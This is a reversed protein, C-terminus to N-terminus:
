RLHRFRGLHGLRLLLADVYEGAVAWRRRLARGIVYLAHQQRAWELDRLDARDAEKDFVDVTCLIEIGLTEAEHAALLRDVVAAAANEQAAAGFVM